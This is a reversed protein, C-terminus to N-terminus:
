KALVNGLALALSEFAFQYGSETMRSPLIRQGELLLCAREGMTFKILSAPAAIRASRHLTEPLTTTFEANSVPNPATLNYPGSANEDHLLKVLMAVLDDIHIWSMWQQGTGIRAGMGLKFPLLARGLLGGDPSLVLGTRLLCVRVGSDAAKRAADEWAVCLRASFDSGPPASEDLLRDGADGYYGTASGGLWVAPKHEARAVRRVLDQSQAVRSDWLRKKRQETWRAEFIPEGALSIVADFAADDRWEDLTAFARVDAGCKSKVTDPRRSLVTLAHGEARLAACLHHGILGTGGTILIQM